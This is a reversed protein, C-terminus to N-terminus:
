SLSGSAIQNTYYEQKESLPTNKFLETYGTITHLPTKLDHSVTAILQERSKLVDDTTEKAIKLKKRLREARFFDSIIMYSFLLIVILGVVGSIKLVSSAKEISRKQSTKERLYSKSIEQDFAM